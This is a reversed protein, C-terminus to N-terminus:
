GQPRGHEAFRDSARSKRRGKMGRLTAATNLRHLSCDRGNVQAALLDTAQNEAAPRQAAERMVRLSAVAPQPAQEGGFGDHVEHEEGALLADLGQQGTAVGVDEADQVLILFPRDLAKLPDRLGGGLASVGGLAYVFDGLMRGGGDVHVPPAGAGLVVVRLSAGDAACLLEQVADAAM